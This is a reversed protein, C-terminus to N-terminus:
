MYFVYSRRKLKTYKLLNWSGIHRLQTFNLTSINREQPAFDCKGLLHTYFLACQTLLSLM